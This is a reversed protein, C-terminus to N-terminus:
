SFSRPEPSCRSSLRLVAQDLTLSSDAGQSMEILEALELADKMAKNVGEGSFPTALSAADGILAFSQKHEWKCGVPLEYLTWHRLSDLDAEKLLETMDTAWGEYMKLARELTAKKGLKDLTEKAENEPCRFWSRVKLSGNGLRQANLMKRDLSGFCMGKGVRKDVHPCKKAPEAIDMEYGSMGSYVPKVETLRARVKSWAGDAGVVLDFPEEMMERGEFRLMGDETVERLKRGWKVCVEPVGGLFVEKLRQRDIEPREGPEKSVHVM